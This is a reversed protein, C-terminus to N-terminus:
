KSASIEEYAIISAEQYAHTTGGHSDVRAAIDSCAKNLYEPFCIGAEPGRSLFAAYNTAIDAFDRVFRMAALQGAAMEFESMEVQAPFEWVSRNPEGEAVEVYRKPVEGRNRWNAIASRSLRLRAALDTDSELRFRKKLLDIIEEPKKANSM